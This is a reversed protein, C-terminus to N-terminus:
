EHHEKEPEWNTCHCKRYHQKKDSYCYIYGDDRPGAGWCHHECNECVHESPEELTALIEANDEEFRLYAIDMNVQALTNKAAIIDCWIEEGYVDSGEKYMAELKKQADKLCACDAYKDM